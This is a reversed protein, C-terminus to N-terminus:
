EHGGRGAGGRVGRGHPRQGVSRRPLGGAPPQEPGTAPDHLGRGPRAPGAPDSPQGAQPSPRVAQGPAEAFLCYRAFARPAYRDRICMESGVLSASM